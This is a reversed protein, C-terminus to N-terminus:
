HWVTSVYAEVVTANVCKYITINSNLTGYECCYVTNLNTPNAPNTVTVTLTLLTLVVTLTLSLMLYTGSHIHCRFEFM